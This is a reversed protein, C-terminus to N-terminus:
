ETTDRLSLVLKLVKTTVDHEHTGHDTYTLSPNRVPITISSVPRPVVLQEGLTVLPQEIFDVALNFGSSYIRIVELTTLNLSVAYFM